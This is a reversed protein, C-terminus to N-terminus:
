KPKRFKLLFQDTKGRIAPNFVMKTRDDAPNAFIPSEGDLVFGAAKMDAKVRAEDIRHTTNTDRLDTGAPASHDLIIFVGGPKLAAFVEKNFGPVDAPGLFPDYLDHYNQRIFVEDLSAAPLGMAALTPSSASVNSFAPTASLGQMVDLAQKGQAEAKVLEAPVVAYVRGGPGVKQSFARVFRGAFIDAIKDGPKVGMFAIVDAGKLSPDSLADPPPGQPPQAQATLAAPAGLFLALLAPALLTKPSM